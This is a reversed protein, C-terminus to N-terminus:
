LPNQFNCSLSLIIFIQYKTIHVSFVEYLPRLGYSGVVLHDLVLVIQRFSPLRSPVMFIPSTSMVALSYSNFATM